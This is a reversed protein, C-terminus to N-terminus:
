WLLTCWTHVPHVVSYLISESM